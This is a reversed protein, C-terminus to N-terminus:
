LFRRVDPFRQYPFILAWSAVAVKQSEGPIQGTMKEKKHGAPPLNLRPLHLCRPAGLVPLSM